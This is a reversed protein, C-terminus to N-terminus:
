TSVRSLYARVHDLLGRAAGEVQDLMQEFDKAQGYYPDALDVDRQGAFDLLLKLKHLHQPACDQRMLALHGREMAVILDFREYDDPAVQRARLGSINYGRRLAHAAARRDPPQGVHYDQTGASDVTVYKALSADELLRRFVGEAAPSRCINGTCIFLVAMRKRM